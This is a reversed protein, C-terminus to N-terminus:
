EDDDSQVDFRSDFLAGQIQKASKKGAGGGKGKGMQGHSIAALSPMKKVLTKFRFHVAQKSVHPQMGPHAKRKELFEKTYTLKYGASYLFRTFDTDHLNGDADKTKIWRLNAFDSLSHYSGNPKQTMLLCVLLKTVLSQSSFSIMEKRLKDEVDVPLGTPGFAKESKGHEPDNRAIAKSLLWTDSGSIPAGDGSDSVAASQEKDVIADLSMFSNGNHAPNNDGDRDCTHCENLLSKLLDNAQQLQDVKKGLAYSYLDPRKEAKARLAAVEKEFKEIRKRTHRKRQYIACKSKGETDICAHACIICAEILPASEEPPINGDPHQELLLDKRAQIKCRACVM